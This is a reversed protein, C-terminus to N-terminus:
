CCRLVSLVADSETRAKSWRRGGRILWREYVLKQMRRSRVVGVSRDRWGLYLLCLFVSRVVFADWHLWLELLGAM